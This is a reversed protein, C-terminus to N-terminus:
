KHKNQMRGSLNVKIVNSFLHSGLPLDVVKCGKAFLVFFILTGGVRGLLLEIRSDTKNDVARVYVSILGVSVIGLFKLYNILGVLIITELDIDPTVAFFIEREIDFNSIYKEDIVKFDIKVFIRKL